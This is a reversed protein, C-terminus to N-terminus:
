RAATPIQVMEALQERTLPERLYKFALADQMLTDLGSVRDPWVLAKPFFEDRVRRAMEPPINAFAAYRALADDSAYMWDITERYGQVFRQFVDRRADLMAAM